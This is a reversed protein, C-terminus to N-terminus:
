TGTFERMATRTQTLSLASRCESEMSRSEGRMTFMEVPTADLACPDTGAPRNAVTAASPEATEPVAPFGEQFARVVGELEARCSTTEQPGVVAGCMKPLGQRFISNVTQRLSDLNVNAIDALLRDESISQWFYLEQTALRTMRTHVNSGSTLHGGRIRTKVRCLEEEEVPKTWDGLSGIEDLILEFATQLNSPSTGGEIVIVGTDRYAHYECGIHYVVGWEERLRNHLRSSVGGGLLDTLAHIDYRAPHAYPVCPIGLAFYAQNSACQSVHLRGPSVPPPTRVVQSEGILRWFCDRTQAVFDDHDLAGGAAITMRDPSYHKHVFYIVDERTFNSIAQGDGAIPRGLPHEQWLQRKLLEQVHWPPNDFGAEIECLIASKERIVSNEPFTSNLLIDGLLDLAHFCYDDMVSAYYCTYDRTTFAGIQGGANDITTRIEAARRCSTGQFMLHECFHALGSEEGGEDRSGCDFLVGMSVSRAWPIAETVVQVGNELLTRRVTTGSSDMAESAESKM